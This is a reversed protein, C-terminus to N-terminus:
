YAYIPLSLRKLEKLFKKDFTAISSNKVQTCLAALQADGYDSVYKPWYSLVKKINVECMLEIGAM